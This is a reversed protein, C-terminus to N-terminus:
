AARGRKSSLDRHENPGIDVGAESQPDRAATYRSAFDICHAAYRTHDGEEGEDCIIRPTESFLITLLECPFDAWSALKLIAPGSMATEGRAYQGLSSMSIGTAYHMETQSINFPAAAAKRFMTKQARLLRQTITCNHQM